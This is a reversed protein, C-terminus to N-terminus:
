RGNKEDQNVEAAEKISFRYHIKCYANFDNLRTDYIWQAISIEEIENAHCFAEYNEKIGTYWWMAEAVEADEISYVEM